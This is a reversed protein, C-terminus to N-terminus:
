ERERETRDREGERVVNRDATVSFIMDPHGGYM